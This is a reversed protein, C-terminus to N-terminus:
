IDTSNIYSIEEAGRWKGEGPQGIGSWLPFCRLGAAKKILIKVTHASLIAGM